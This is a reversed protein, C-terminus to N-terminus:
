APPRLAFGLHPPVWWYALALSLSVDRLDFLCEGPEEMAFQQVSLKSWQFTNIRRAQAM